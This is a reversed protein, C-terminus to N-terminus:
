PGAASDDDDGSADDDDGATVSGAPAGPLGAVEPWVLGVTESLAPCAEVGLGAGQTSLLQQQYPFIDPVRSIQGFLTVEATGGQDAVTDWEPLSVGLPLESGRIEITEQSKYHHYYRHSAAQLAMSTRDPYDDRDREAEEVLTALLTGCLDAPDIDQDPAQWPASGGGGADPLIGEGHQSREYLRSVYQGPALLEGGEFAADDGGRVAARFVGDSPAQGGTVEILVHGARYVGEGGFAERAAGRIEQCVYPVWSPPRESPSLALVDDVYGQLSAIESLYTSYAACSVEQDAGVFVVSVLDRAPEGTLAPDTSTRHAFGQVQYAGGPPFPSEGEGVDLPGWWTQVWAGDNGCGVLGLAVLLLLPSTRQM